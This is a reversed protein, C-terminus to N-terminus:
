IPILFPILMKKHDNCFFADWYEYNLKIRFETISYKNINRITHNHYKKIQFNIDKIMIFQADHNSLSNLLSSISHNNIKLTGIFINDIVTSSKNQIRTPFYAISSLIYLVFMDDLQLKKKSNVLYNINIDGTCHIQLFRCTMLCWLSVVAVM